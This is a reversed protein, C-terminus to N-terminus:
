PYDSSCWIIAQGSCLVSQNIKMNYNGLVLPSGNLKLMGFNDWKLGELTIVPFDTLFKGFFPVVIKDLETEVSEMVPVGEKANHGYIIDMTVNKLGRQGQESPLIRRVVEIAGHLFACRTDSRRLRLIQEITFTSSAAM